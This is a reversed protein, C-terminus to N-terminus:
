GLEVKVACDDCLIRPSTAPLPRGCMPCSSRADAAAQLEQVSARLLSPGSPPVTVPAPEAPATSPLIAELRPHYLGTRHDFTVLRQSLLGELASEVLERLGGFVHSIEVTTLGDSEVLVELCHTALFSLQGRGLLRDLEWSLRATRAAQKAASLRGARPDPLLTGHVLDLEYRIRKEGFYLLLAVGFPIVPLARCTRLMARSTGLLGPLERRTGETATGEEEARSRPVYHERLLVRAIARKPGETGPIRAEASGDAHLAVGELPQLFEWAPAPPPELGLEIEAFRVGTDALAAFLSPFARGDVTLSVPALPRRRRGVFEDYARVLARSSYTDFRGPALQGAVKELEPLSVTPV